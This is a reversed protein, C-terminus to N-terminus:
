RLDTLARLLTERDRSNRIEWVQLHPYKDSEILLRYERARRRHTRIVWWLISEKNFLVLRLNERNGSWLVEKKIVRAVTRRLAQWFVRPFPLNLWVLHTAKSWIIDRLRSYNGDVVWDSSETLADVEARLEEVPKPTWGPGWHVSDLEIHPIGKAAAIQRALTTKGSCSTGVIAIRLM